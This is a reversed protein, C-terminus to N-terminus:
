NIMNDVEAGISLGFADTLVKISGTELVTGLSNCVTTGLISIVLLLISILSLLVLSIALVLLMVKLGCRFRDTGRCWMCMVALMVIAGLLAIGVCIGITAGLGYRAMYGRGKDLGDSVLGFASDVNTQLVDLENIASGFM